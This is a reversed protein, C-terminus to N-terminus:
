NGVQHRWAGTTPVVTDDPTLHWNLSNAGAETRHWSMQHVVASPDNMLRSAGDPKNGVIGDISTPWSHIQPALLTTGDTDLFSM